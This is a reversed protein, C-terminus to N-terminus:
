GDVGSNMAQLKVLNAYIGNKALLESHTGMEQIEGKGMVIIRDAKEITSLRHAVTFCTRGKMLRELALKIHHESESDLASTAEDLILIPSNKLLARAISIRQKQGGSLRNGAEGVPTNLGQPLSQIFDTLAAAEIVENIQEDTANPVGYAINARITDDFMVVDQSVVAIQNRLSELTLEKYDEGDFLIRGQTPEWFRPILNVLSSKGSGSQGVLAINEGAKVDLNFNKLAFDGSEPYKLSVNEFVIDGKIRDVVKTGSDNETPEDMTHFISQAAMAMGVFTANLQTLQKLPQMMLLMASLFTIFEGMTLLGHQAEFFAVAVVIAVGVMTILQTIPSGMASMKMMQLPVKKILNNVEEFRSIERSYNNYVKVVRQAEYTEQVRVLMTAISQQSNAVIEKMKKSIKRLVFAIVPAIVLTVLTLQWNYYILIGMLGVVQVSDRVLVIISKAANSLAVNAENVFKSSILGTTNRQYTYAPWYLINTFLQTRLTVLISQSVKSLLYSSMFVCFGNLAAIFILCDPAGVVMWTAKEYFGIDTLKGLFTAILSSSSGSLAMFIMSAIFKGKHEPLYTLLRRLSPDMKKTLLNLLKEFM